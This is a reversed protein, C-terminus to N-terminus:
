DQDRKRKMKSMIEEQEYEEDMRDFREDHPRSISYLEAKTRKVKKPKTETKESM